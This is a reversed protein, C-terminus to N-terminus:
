GVARLPYPLNMVKELTNTRFHVYYCSQIEFESVELSCDMVNAIVGCSSGGRSFNLRVSSSYVLLNIFLQISICINQMSNIAPLIFQESNIGTITLMHM